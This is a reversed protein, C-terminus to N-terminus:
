YVLGRANSGSGLLIECLMQHSKDWSKLRTLTPTRNKNNNQEASIEPASTANKPSLGSSIACNFSALFCRDSHTSRMRCFGLRKNAVIKIALLATFMPITKNNLLKPSTNRLADSRVRQPIISRFNKISTTKTVNKIKINPSIRGLTYALLFRIGKAKAIARGMLTISITKRGNLTGM